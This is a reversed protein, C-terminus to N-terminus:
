RCTSGRNVLWGPEIDRAVRAAMEDRDLRDRDLHELVSLTTPTM